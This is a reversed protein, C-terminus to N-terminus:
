PFMAKLDLILSGLVRTLDQITTNAGDDLTRDPTGPPNVVTWSPNMSPLNGGSGGGGGTTTNLYPGAVDGADNIEYLGNAGPNLSNIVFMRYFEGAPLEASITAGEVAPDPVSRVVPTKFQGKYTTVGSEQAFVMAQLPNGDSVVYVTGDPDAGDAPKSTVYKLGQGAGIEIAPDAVSVLWRRGNLLIISGIGGGNAEADAILEAATPASPDAYAGTAAIEKVWESHALTRDAGRATAVGPKTSPSGILYDAVPM